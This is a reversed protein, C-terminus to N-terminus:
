GTTGRWRSRAPVADDAGVPAGAGVAAGRGGPAGGAGDDAARRLESSGEARVPFRCCTSARAARASFGRWAPRTCGASCSSGSSASWLRRCGAGDGAEAEARLFAGSARRHGSPASHAGRRAPSVHAPHLGDRQTGRARRDALAWLHIRRIGRELHSGADGRPHLPLRTTARRSSPRACPEAHHRASDRGNRSHRAKDHQSGERYPQCRAAAHLQAIHRRRSPSPWIGSGM